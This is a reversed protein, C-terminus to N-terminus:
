NRVVERGQGEMLAKLSTALERLRPGLEQELVPQTLRLAPGGGDRLRWIRSAAISRAFRM